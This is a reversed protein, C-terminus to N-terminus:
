RRACRSTGSGPWWRRAGAAVAGDGDPLAAADRLRAVGAPGAPRARQRPQLAQRHLVRRPPHQRHHRDASPAARPRHGVASASRGSPGADSGDSAGHSPRDRRVRDGTRLAVGLPGRRGPAGAVHHRHVPGLVPLVAGPAAALLDADVGAPRTQAADAVGGPHHRRAHHPQRRRHRRAHRRRRVVRHVAARTPGARLPDGAARRQEAFSATPAVNVEIVGPDPTVSM